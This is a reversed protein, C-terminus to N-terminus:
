ALSSSVLRDAEEAVKKGDLIADDIWQYEWNSFRGALLVSNENLFSKIIKLSEKRNQDFIVYGYKIDILDRFEIKDEKSLINTRVLDNIVVDIINDKDILRYDSYSVEASVSSKGEPANFPSLNKLFCIRCFSYEKEVFHIFHYNNLQSNDIGLNICLISNHRLKDVAKLVAEPAEVLKILDPLPITSVLVDYSDTSGDSFKIEKRKLDIKVAEKNLSVNIGYKVFANPIAAIGDKIPYKFKAFPGFRKKQDTLAGEIVEDLSPMPIQQSIWDTTLEKPSVTWFKDSYPIMFNRAIGKGFKAIIWEEYNKYEFNDNNKKSEIYADIFSILCEKVVSVPLGFTNAQFPYRSLREFSYIWSSSEIEDFKIELDNILLNLVYENKTHLVHIGLDFIYGDTKPSMCTGGVIDNKEYIKGGGHYAASLGALGAGLIIKNGHNSM